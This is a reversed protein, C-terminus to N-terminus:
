RVGMFIAKKDDTKFYGPGSSLAHRMNRLFNRDRASKEGKGAYLVWHYGHEIVGKKPL